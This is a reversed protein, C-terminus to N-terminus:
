TVRLSRGLLGRRYTGVPFLLSNVHGACGRHVRKTQCCLCWWDRSSQYEKAIQGNHKTTEFAQRKDLACLCTCKWYSQVWLQALVRACSLAISVESKCRARVVRVVWWLYENHSDNTWISCRGRRHRCEGVEGKACISVHVVQSRLVERTRLPLEVHLRSHRELRVWLV